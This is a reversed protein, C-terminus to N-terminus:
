EDGGKEIVKTIARLCESVAKRLINLSGPLELPESVGPHRLSVVIKDSSTEVRVFVKDPDIKM